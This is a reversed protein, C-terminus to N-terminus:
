DRIAVWRPLTGVPPARQPPILGIRILVGERCCPCKNPKWAKDSQFLKVVAAARLEKRTKPPVIVKEPELNLRIAALAARKRQNSLIGYHRIRRFHPPPIHMTFRRLFEVGDLTMVGKQGEKKYNKYAFTVGKEASVDLIRHNSIAIKHTYRGLYELVQQPGGFPRKAYVVWPKQYLTDRWKKYKKRDAFQPPQHATDFWENPLVLAGSELLTLVKKLYIAKFVCSMAKVPYLFQESRSKASQWKSEKTLGGGPVIAHVHPHLSLNQGWTHLVMVAGGEAELHKPDAAFIQLTEWAAEFLLGYMTRPNLLCLGNLEAAITFVVHYYIVPLLDQERGLVWAERDVGQCKGCSRNGCRNYSIQLSGCANCADVHGGLTATRCALIDALTQRIYRPQRRTQELAAGFTKIVDALEWQPKNTSQHVPKNTSQHVPPNGTLQNVLRWDVLKRNVL